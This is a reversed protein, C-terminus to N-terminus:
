CTSGRLNILPAIQMNRYNSGAHFLALVSCCQMNADFRPPFLTNTSDLKRHFCDAHTHTYGLKVGSM